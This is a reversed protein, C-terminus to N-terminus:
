AHPRDMPGLDTVPALADLIRELIGARETEAFARARAGAAAPDALLREVAAPLEAEAAFAVAGAAAMRDFIEQFNGVRPGSLVAAGLLAPEIPNHGQWRYSGAVLAVPVLRYFLGLEGMTDALYIQTAAAVPEGQSRRAVRFGAAALEAAIAPAREPHRPAIITLLRPHRPELAGHAAAIIVEEGTHTSAALWTKRGALLRGLAALAAAEAPLPDAAFKLNGLCRAERAGLAALREAQVPDQALVVAFGQLLPRILPGALRWRSQSRASLHGNVLALPIRRRRAEGLLNPWFESEVWLAFDPRWHDLFRAVWAQRDLPLYQHLTRPPRRRALMAASTVTGTTVLFSLEPAREALAAILPLLSQTEGVSAGHLWALRGAPRPLSAKGYREGLRQAEEKGQPLRRALHRRLLPAALWTASRYLLRIM